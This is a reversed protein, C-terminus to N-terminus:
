LHHHCDNQQRINIRSQNFNSKPISLKRPVDRLRSLFSVFLFISVCQLTFHRRKMPTTTSLPPIRETLLQLIQKNKENVPIAHAVEINRPKKAFHTIIARRVRTPVYFLHPIISIRSPPHYFVSLINFDPRSKNCLFAISGNFLINLLFPKRNIIGTSENFPPPDVDKIRDMAVKDM